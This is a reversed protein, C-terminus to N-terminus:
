AYKFPKGCVAAWEEELDEWPYLTLNNTLDKALAQKKTLGRTENTLKGYFNAEVGKLKQYSYDMFAATYIIRCGPFRRNIENVVVQATTGFCHNNEVLLFVPSHSFDLNENPFDLLKTLPEKNEFLYKYQIPWIKLCHLKYALFTGLFVGGRLIPVVIDVKLHKKKLYDVVKGNVVECVNGYEKWSVRKFDEKKYKPLKMM